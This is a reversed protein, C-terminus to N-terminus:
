PLGGKAEAVAHLLARSRATLNTDPPTNPNLRAVRIAIRYLSQYEDYAKSIKPVDNTPVLGALVLDFYSKVAADTTHGVVNVARYGASACGALYLLALLLFCSLITSPKKM